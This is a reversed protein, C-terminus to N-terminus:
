LPQRRDRGRRRVRHGDAAHRTRQERYRHDERRHRCRPRAGHDEQDGRVGAFSPLAQLEALSYSRVSTGNLEVNLAGAVGTATFTVPSGTLGACTATLTNAGAATGLTWGGCAAVGSADTVAEVTKVSGGGTAVAFAVPVYAVPMGKADTVVVSPATTVAAGTSASQGDGAQLAMQTATRYNFKDASVRASSKGSKAIVVVHVTGSGSPATVTLKSRSVVHVRTAATTGFMVKKVISKGSSTFHEGRVIVTYSGASSGADPSVATVMPGSVAALASVPAILGTFLVAALLLGAAGTGFAFFRKSM